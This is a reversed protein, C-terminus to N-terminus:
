LSSRRIVDSLQEAIDPFPGRTGVCRIGAKARDLTREALVVPLEHRVLVHEPAPGAGGGPTMDSGGVSVEEVSIGGPLEAANPEGPIQVMSSMASHRSTARVSSVSARRSSTALPSEEMGGM